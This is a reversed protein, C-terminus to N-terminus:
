GTTCHEKRQLFSPNLSFDGRLTENWIMQLTYVTYDLSSSGLWASLSLLRLSNIWMVACCGKIRRSISQVRHKKLIFVDKILQVELLHQCFRWFYLNKQPLLSVSPAPSLAVTGVLIQVLQGQSAKGSKTTIILLNERQRKLFECCKQIHSM